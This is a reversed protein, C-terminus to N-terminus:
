STSQGRVSPDRTCLLTPTCIMSPVVILFLGQPRNVIRVMEVTDLSGDDGETDSGHVSEYQCATSLLM